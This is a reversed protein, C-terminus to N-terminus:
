ACCLGIVDQRSIYFINTGMDEIIEEMASLYLLSIINTGMDEMAEEM